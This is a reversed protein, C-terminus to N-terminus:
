NAEPLGEDLVSLCGGAVRIAEPVDKPLSLPCLRTVDYAIAFEGSRRERRSLASTPPELGGRGVVWEFEIEWSTRAHLVLVASAPHGFGLM